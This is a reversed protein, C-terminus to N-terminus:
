QGSVSLVSVWFCRIYMIPKINSLLFCAGQLYLEDELLRQRYVAITM